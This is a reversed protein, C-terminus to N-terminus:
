ALLGACARGKDNGVPGARTGKSEGVDPCGLGLKEPLYIQQLWEIDGDQFPLPEVCLGRQEGSFRSDPLWCWRGPTRRIQTMEPVLVGYHLHRPSLTRCIRCLRLCRGEPTLSLIGAHGASDLM